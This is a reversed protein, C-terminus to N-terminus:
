ERHHLHRHPPPPRRCAPLHLFPPTESLLRLFRRLLTAQPLLRSRSGAQHMRAFAPLTAARALAAPAAPQAAVAPQQPMRAFAPLAADRASAAAAAASAAASQRPQAGFSPRATPAAQACAGRCTRLTACLSGPHQVQARSVSPSRM